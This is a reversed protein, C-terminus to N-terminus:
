VRPLVGALRRGIAPQAIVRPLIALMSLRKEIGLGSISRTSHEGSWMPEVPHVWTWPDSLSPMLANGLTDIISVLTCVAEGRKPVLDIIM